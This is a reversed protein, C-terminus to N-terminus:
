DGGIATEDAEVVARIQSLAIKAKAAHENYFQHHARLSNPAFGVGTGVRRNRRALLIAMLFPKRDVNGYDEVSVIM